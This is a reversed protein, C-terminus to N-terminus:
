SWSATLLLNYLAHALILRWLSRDVWFLLGFTMAMLFLLLRDWLDYPHALAFMVSSILLAAMPSRTLRTLRHWLYARFFVEEVGAAVLVSTSVVCWGAVSDPVWYEYYEELRPAGLADRIVNLALATFHWVVTLLLAWGVEVMIRARGLGSVIAWHSGRWLLFLVLSVEGLNYLLSYLEGELTAPESVSSFRFGVSSVFSPLWVVLLVMGLELKTELLSPRVASHATEPARSSEEPQQTQQRPTDRPPLDAHCKWCVPFDEPNEEGCERCTTPFEEFSKQGV